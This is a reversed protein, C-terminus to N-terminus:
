LLSFEAGSINLIESVSSVQLGRLHDSSAHLVSLGSLIVQPTRLLGKSERSPCVATATGPYLQTNTHEVMWRKASNLSQKEVAWKAPEKAEKLQLELDRLGQEQAAQISLKDEKEGSLWFPLKWM